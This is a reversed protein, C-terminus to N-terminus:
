KNVIKSFTVFLDLKTSMKICSHTHLIHFYAIEKLLFFLHLIKSSVYQLLYIDRHSCHVGDDMKEKPKKKQWICLRRMRFTIGSCDVSITSFSFFLHRRSCCLTSCHLRKNLFFDRTSPSPELKIHLYSEIHSLICHRLVIDLVQQTFVM